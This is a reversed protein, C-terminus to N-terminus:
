YGEAKTHFVGGLVMRTFRYDLRVMALKATNVMRSMYISETGRLRSHPWDLLGFVFEENRLPGIKNLFSQEMKAVAPQRLCYCVVAKFAWTWQEWLCMQELDKEGGKAVMGVEAM